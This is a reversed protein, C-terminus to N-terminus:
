HKHQHSYISELLTLTDLLKPYKVLLSDLRAKGTPSKALSDLALRLRYIRVFADNTIEQPHKEKSQLPMVRIATVRFPENKGGLSSVVVYGSSSVFVLCFVGLLVRLKRSSVGTSKRQLYAAWRVLQNNCRILVGVLFLPVPRM